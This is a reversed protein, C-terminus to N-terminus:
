KAPDLTVFFPIWVDFLDPAGSIDACVEAEMEHGFQKRWVAAFFAYIFESMADSVLRVEGMVKEQASLLDPEGSAAQIAHLVLVDSAFFSANVPSRALFVNWDADWSPDNMASEFAAEVAANGPYHFVHRNRLQPLLGSRGFHAKLTALAKQGADDLLALYEQGIPRKIFRSHLLQWTEALVGVAYRAIMQTQAGSLKQEIEGDPTRNSSFTVLKQFLSIQNVASGLLFLLVREESDLAYLTAKALRVRLVPEKVTEAPTTSTALNAALVARIAEPRGMPDPQAAIWEDLAALAEPQLRVGIM